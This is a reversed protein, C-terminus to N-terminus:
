YQNSTFVQDIDEAWDGHYLDLMVEAPTKQTAIVQRLPQLFGSEDNGGDDFIGRNRLGM